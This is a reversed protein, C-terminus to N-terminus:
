AILMGDKRIASSDMAARDIDVILIMRPELTRNHASHTVRASDFLMFEGDKWRRTDGDVTLACDGDPCRLGLHLRYVEGIASERDIHPRIDCGPVSLSYMSNVVLPDDVLRRLHATAFAMQLPSASPKWARDDTQKYDAADVMKGQWKAPLIFLRIEDMIYVEPSPSFFDIGMVSEVALEGAKVQLREILPALIPYDDVQLFSM